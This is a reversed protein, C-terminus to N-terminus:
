NKHVTGIDQLMIHGASLQMQQRFVVDIAVLVSPIYHFSSILPFTSLQENIMVIVRYVSAGHARLLM